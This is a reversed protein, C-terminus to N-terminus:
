ISVSPEASLATVPSICNLLSMDADAVGIQSLFDYTFIDCLPESFQWTFIKSKIMELLTQRFNQNTMKNRKYWRVAHGVVNYRTIVVGLDFEGDSDEAVRRKRKNARMIKGTFQGPVWAPADAIWESVGDGRTVPDTNERSMYQIAQAVGNKYHKTGLKRDVAGLAGAIRKRIKDRHADSEWKIAVHIHENDGNKGFHPYLIYWEEDYLVHDLVKQVNAHPTTIRVGLYETPPM